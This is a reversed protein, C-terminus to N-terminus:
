FASAHAPDAQSDGHGHDYMCMQEPTDNTANFSPSILQSRAALAADHMLADRTTVMVRYALQCGMPDRCYPYTRGLVSIRRRLVQHLHLPRGDTQLMESDPCRQIRLLRYTGPAPSM